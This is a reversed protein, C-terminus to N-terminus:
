RKKNYVRNVLNGKYEPRDLKMKKSICGCSGKMYPNVRASAKLLDKM